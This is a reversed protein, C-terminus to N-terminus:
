AEHIAQAIRYSMNCHGCSCCKSIRYEKEHYRKGNNNRAMENEMTDLCTQATHDETLRESEEIQALATLAQDIDLREGIMSTGFRTVAELVERRTM